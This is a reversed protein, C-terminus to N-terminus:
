FLYIFSYFYFLPLFPVPVELILLMKSYDARICRYLQMGCSKLSLPLFFSRSIGWRTQQASQDWKPHAANVCLSSDHYFMLWILQDSGPPSAAPLCLGLLAVCTIWSLSFSLLPFHFIHVSVQCSCRFQHRVESRHKTKVNPKTTVWHFLLNTLSNCLLAVNQPINGQHM